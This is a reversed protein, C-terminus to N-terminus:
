LKNYYYYGTSKNEGIRPRSVCGFLGRHAEIVRRTMTMDVGSESPNYYSSSSFSEPYFFVKQDKESVIGKSQDRVSFKVYGDNKEHTTM